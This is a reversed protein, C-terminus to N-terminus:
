NKVQEIGGNAIPFTNCFYLMIANFEIITFILSLIYSQTILSFWLSLIMSGLLVVTKVLNVKEFMKNMYQQPGNWFALGVLAAIVAMTFICVFKGPSTVISFINMISVFLLLFCIGFAGFAKTYEKKDPLCSFIKETTTLPRNLTQAQQRQFISTGYNTGSKQSSSSELDGTSVNSSRDSNM